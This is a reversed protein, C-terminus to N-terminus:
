KLNPKASGAVEVLRMWCVISPRLQHGLLYVRSLKSQIYLLSFRGMGMPPWISSSILVYQVLAAINKQGRGTCFFEGPRELAVQFPDNFINPALSLRCPWWCRKPM